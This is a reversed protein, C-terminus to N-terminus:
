GHFGDHCDSSEIFPSLASALWSDLPRIVSNCFIIPRLPVGQTLAKPLGYSYPISPNVKKCRDFFKPDPCKGAIRRPNKRFSETVKASPNSPLKRYTSSFARPGGERPINQWSSM